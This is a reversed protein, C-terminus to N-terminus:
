ISRYAKIKIAKAMSSQHFKGYVENRKAEDSKCDIGRLYNGIPM